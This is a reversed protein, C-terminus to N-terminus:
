YKLQCLRNMVYAGLLMLLCAVMLMIQGSFTNYLPAMYTANILNLLVFMVFPLALLIRKSLQTQTTLVRMRRSLRMRERIVSSLREMMDALNGGSQIQISVSAAFLQMDPNNSRMAAQRLAKDMSVGLEQHQCIEYFVPGVPDGVEQSILRFSGTLPHGARLSRAAIEMADVLQREFGSNRRRVRHEFYLWIAVPVVAGACLAAMPSGSAALVTLAVALTSGVAALAIASASLRLGASKRKAELWKAASYSRRFVTVTTTASKGDHWLRLTKVRQSEEQLGLRREIKEQTDSSRGRWFILVIAFLSIVLLFTALLVVIDVITLDFM